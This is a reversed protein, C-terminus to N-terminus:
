DTSHWWDCQRLTYHSDIEVGKTALTSPIKNTDFPMLYACFETHHERGLTTYVIRGFFFETEYGTKAKSINELFEPTVVQKDRIVVLGQSGPEEASPEDRSMDIPMNRDQPLGSWYKTAFGSHVLAVSHGINETEVLVVIPEGTVVAKQLRINQIAIRGRISEETLRNANRITDLTSTMNKTQEIAQRSQTEAAKASAKSAQAQVTAQEILADTKELSKQMKDVQLKSEESQAKAADAQKGAAIALDHTDIGGSHMEGLQNKLIFLTGLSLMALIVTFVAMWVTATASRRAAKDAPTEQEKKVKREYVQHKVYGVFREWGDLRFKDVPAHSQDGTKADTDEHKQDHM